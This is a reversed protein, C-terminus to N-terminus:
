AKVKIKTGMDKIKKNTLMGLLWEIECAIWIPKIILTAFALKRNWGKGTPSLSPIPFNFLNSYLKFTKGTGNGQEGSSPQSKKSSTSSSYSKSSSSSYSHSSSSSSSSYSSSSSQSSATGLFDICILLLHELITLELLM